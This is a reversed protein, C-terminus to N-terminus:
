VGDESHQTSMRGRGILVGSDSGCLGCLVGPPPSTGPTHSAPVTLNRSTVPQGAKGLEPYFHFLILFVAFGLHVAAEPIAGSDPHEM